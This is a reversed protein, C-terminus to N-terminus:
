FMFKQFILFLYPFYTKSYNRFIQCINFFWNQADSSHKKLSKSCPTLFDIESIKRKKWKKTKKKLLVNFVWWFLPKLLSPTDKFAEGRRSSGSDTNLISKPQSLTSSHLNRKLLLIETGINYIVKQVFCILLFVCYKNRGCHNINSSICLNPRVKRM